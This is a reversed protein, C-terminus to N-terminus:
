TEDRREAPLQRRNRPNLGAALTAEVLTLVDLADFAYAAHEEGTVRNLWKKESQRQFYVFGHDLCAHAADVDSTTTITPNLESACGALALATGLIVAAFFFTPQASSPPVATLM